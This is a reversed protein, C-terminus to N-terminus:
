ELSGGCSPCAEFKRRLEKRVRMAEKEEKSMFFGKTPPLACLKCPPWSAEEPEPALYVQAKRLKDRAFLPLPQLVSMFGAQKAPSSEKLDKRLQDLSPPAHVPESMARVRFTVSNSSTTFTSSPRRASTIPGVSASSVRTSRSPQVPESSARTSRKAYYTGTFNIKAPTRSALDEDLEPSNERIATLSAM